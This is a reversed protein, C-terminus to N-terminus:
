GAAATAEQVTGCPGGGPDLAIGDWVGGDFRYLPAYGGSIGESATTAYHCIFARRFRDASDNPYSGHVVSGNFFLVDGARMEVPVPEAGEPLAVQETTFYRSADARDPCIIGYRHSGPVVFMGGNGPDADDVATWAAMCSDPHVRLYFNDQHLAQGRAGPPKFYFMSQAAVPEGGMLVRLVDRVRSNLMLRMSPAGVPQDAHRHPHMMRGYAYLPDRPDTVRGDTNLGEVRGREAQAMFVDRLAHMEAREFLGRAVYYGDRAYTERLARQADTETGTDEGTDESM